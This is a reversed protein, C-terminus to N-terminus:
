VSCHFHFGLVLDRMVHPEFFPTVGCGTDFRAVIADGIFKDIIAEHESLIEVIMGRDKTSSSDPTFNNAGFGFV